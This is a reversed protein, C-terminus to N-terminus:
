ERRYFQQFTLREDPLARSPNEFSAVKKTAPIEFDTRLAADRSAYGKLPCLFIPQGNYTLRNM